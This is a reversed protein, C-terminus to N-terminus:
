SSPGDRIVTDGPAADLVGSECLRQLRGEVCGLSRSATTTPQKLLEQIGVFVFVIRDKETGQKLNGTAIRFGPRSSVAVNSWCSTVRDQKSIMSQASSVYIGRGRQCSQCACVNVKMIASDVDISTVGWAPPVSYWAGRGRLGVLISWRLGGSVSSSNPFFPLSIPDPIELYVWCRAGEIGCM